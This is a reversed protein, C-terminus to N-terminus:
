QRSYELPPHWPKLREIRIFRLPMRTDLCIQGRKDLEYIVLKHPIIRGPLKEDVSKLYFDRQKGGLELYILWDFGDFLTRKLLRDIKEIDYEKEEEEILLQYAEWTEFLDEIDLTKGCDCFYYRGGGEKEFEHKHNETSKTKYKGKTESM